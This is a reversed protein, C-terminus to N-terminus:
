PWVPCGRCKIGAEKELTRQTELFGKARFHQMLLQVVLEKSLKEKVQPKGPRYLNAFTLARHLPKVRERVERIEPHAVLVEQVWSSRDAEGALLQSNHTSAAGTVLHGGKLGMGEFESQARIVETGEETAAMKEM